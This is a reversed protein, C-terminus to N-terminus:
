VKLIFSYEKTPLIVKLVKLSKSYFQIRYSLLVKLVKLSKSYFQTRFSLLVNLVKLTFSHELTPLISPVKITTCFRDKVARCIYFMKKIKM